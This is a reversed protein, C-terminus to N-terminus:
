SDNEKYENILPSYDMTTMHIDKARTLFPITTTHINRLLDKAHTLFLISFFCSNITLTPILLSYHIGPISLPYMKLPVAELFGQQIKKQREEEKQRVTVRERETQTM